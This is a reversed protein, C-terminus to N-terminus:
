MPKVMAHDGDQRPDLAGPAIQESKRCFMFSSSVM